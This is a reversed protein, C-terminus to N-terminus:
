FTTVDGAFRTISMQPIPSAGMGLSGGSTQEVRATVIDGEALPLAIATSLHQDGFGTTAWGEIPGLAAANLGGGNVAVDLYRAGTIVGNFSM